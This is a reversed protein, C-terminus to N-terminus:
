DELAAQRFQLQILSLPAEVCFKDPGFVGSIYKQKTILVYIQIVCVTAAIFCSRDTSFIIIPGYFCWCHLSFLKVDTNYYLLIYHHGV